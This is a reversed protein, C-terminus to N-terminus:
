FRERLVAFYESALGLHGTNHISAIALNAASEALPNRSQRAVERLDAAATEFEALSLEGPTVDLVTQHNSQNITNLTDSM